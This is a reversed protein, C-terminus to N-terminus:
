PQVICTKCGVYGRRAAYSLSRLIRRVSSFGNILCLSVLGVVCNCLEPAGPKETPREESQAIGEQGKASRARVAHRHLVCGTVVFFLQPNVVNESRRKVCYIGRVLITGGFVVLRLLVFFKHFSLPTQYARQYATDINHRQVGLWDYYFCASLPRATGALSAPLVTLTYLGLTHQCLM